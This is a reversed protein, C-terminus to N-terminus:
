SPARRLRRRRRAGARAAAPQIGAAVKAMPLKVGIVGTSAVLVWAEDCQVAVAALRTMEHADRMGDAGTCANACGSNVVVARPAGTRRQLHERSVLIPAAQAVNTTFVAAASAERRQRAAVPRAQREGQHRVGRRRRSLRGARDRRRRDDAHRPRRRRDHSCRRADEKEERGRGADAQSARHQAPAARGRPRSDHRGDARSGGRSGPAADPPRRVPRLPPVARLGHLRARDERADLHAARHHLRPARFAVPRAHLRLADLLRGVDGDGCSAGVLRSGIKQGRLSETVVLSRVEAVTPSLRALEACAVVAGDQEAVFFRAIHEKIDDLSRPLLHGIELNGAILAHIASADALTAVRLNVSVLTGGEGAALAADLLVAMQNVDASDVIYPPLLRLVTDATRNILLGRELAADVVPAAPRDLELGWIVGAGRVEVVTSHRAAVRRLAAEIEPGIQAVHAM